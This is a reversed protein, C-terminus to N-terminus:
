LVPRKRQKLLYQVLVMIKGLFDWLTRPWRMPDVGGIKMGNWRPVVKEFTWDRDDKDINKYCYTISFHTYLLTPKLFIRLNQKIFFFIERFYKMFFCNETKFIGGCAYINTVFFCWGREGCGMRPTSNFSHVIYNYLLYVYYADLTRYLCHVLM